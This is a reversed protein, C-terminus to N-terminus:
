KNWVKGAGILNPESDTITGYVAVGVGHCNGGLWSHDSYGIQNFHESCFSFSFSQRDLKNHTGDSVLVAFDDCLIM